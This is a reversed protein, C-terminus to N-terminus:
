NAPQNEQKNRVPRKPRPPSAWSPRPMWPQPLLRPYALALTKRQEESLLALVGIKLKGLAQILAAEAEAWSALQKRAREEDGQELAEHFATRAKGQKARSRKANRYTEFLRDMEARQDGSLSLKEIV